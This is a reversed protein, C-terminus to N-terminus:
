LLVATPDLPESEEFGFVTQPCITTPVALHSHLSLLAARQGARICDEHHLGKLISGIMGGAFCDGAGSVSVIKAPNPASYHLARIRDKPVPHQTTPFSSGEPLSTILLVGYPGLTIVLTHLEHDM